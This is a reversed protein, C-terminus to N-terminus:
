IRIVPRIDAARQWSQHGDRRKRRQTRTSATSTPSLFEHDGPDLEREDLLKSDGYQLSVLAAEEASDFESHERSSEETGDTATADAPTLWGAVISM